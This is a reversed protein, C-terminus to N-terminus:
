GLGSSWSGFFCWGGPLSNKQNPGGRCFSRTLRYTRHWSLVSYGSGDEILLCRVPAPCEHSIQVQMLSKLSRRRALERPHRRREMTGTPEMGAGGWVLCGLWSSFFCGKRFFLTSHSSARCYERNNTNPTPNLAVTATCAAFARTSHM